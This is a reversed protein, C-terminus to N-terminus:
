LVVLEYGERVFPEISAHGDLGSLLGIGQSRAVDAVKRSEIDIALGDIPLAAIAM